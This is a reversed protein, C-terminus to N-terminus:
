FRNLGNFDLRDVCRSLAQSISDSGGMDFMLSVKASESSAWTRSVTESPPNDIAVELSVTSVAQQDEVDIKFDVIRVTVRAKIINPDSTANVGLHQLRYRIAEYVANEVTVNTRSYKEGRSGVIELDVIGTQSKKFLDREMAKQGVLNKNQRADVVRLLVYGQTLYQSENQVNYTVTLPAGMKVPCGTLFLLLVLACFPFFIKSTSM